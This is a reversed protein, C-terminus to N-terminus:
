QKAAELLGLYMDWLESPSYFYFLVGLEIINLAVYGLILWKWPIRSKLNAILASM